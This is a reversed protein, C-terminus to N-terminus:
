PRVGCLRVELAEEYHKQAEEVMNLSQKCFALEGLAKRYEASNKDSQQSILAFVWVCFERVLSVFAELPGLASTFADEELYKSAINRLEMKKSETVNSFGRFGCIGSRRSTVCVVRMNTSGEDLTSTQKSLSMVATDKQKEKPKRVFPLFTYTARKREVKENRNNKRKKGKGNLITM